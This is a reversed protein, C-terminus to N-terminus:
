EAEMATFEKIAANPEIINYGAWFDPNYSKFKQYEFTEQGKVAEYEESALPRSEYVVLQVKEVQGFRMDLELDLENQKNRGPVHRNKEIITLPRDIGVTEGQERELYSLSYKGKEDKMFIMKGRYIDDIASIGFLRFKSLPRVNEYEIRHVGYDQADIFIKGKFDARRKPEFNVVYVTNQGLHLIGQLDFEYKRIKEFLNFAIDEKWFMNALLSQIEKGTGEQLNKKIKAEKEAIEEPTKEKKDADSDEFGEKLEDEDVKVGLLGSRIKLFSREKLNQRFLTELHDTLQELSQTNQPNYLNAAKVIRVKQSDYNGYLDALVEKYSDTVKPMEAEIRDMLNQDIGPITSEEVKMDFKRIHSFDSERYFVRKQGLDFDYNDVVKEKAMEVIERPSLEKNSLFVEKLEISAPKLYVTSNAIDQPSLVLTEYGLSSIELTAPLEESTFSFFGEENTVVGKHKGFLVNAYPIPKESGWELVQVKM